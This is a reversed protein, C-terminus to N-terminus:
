GAEFEVVCNSRKSYKTVGPRRLLWDTRQSFVFFIQNKVNFRDLCCHLFNDRRYEWFYALETINCDKNCDIMKTTFITTTFGMPHLDCLEYTEHTMILM